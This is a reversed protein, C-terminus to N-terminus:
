NQDNGIVSRIWDLFYIVDTYRALQGAACSRGNGGFGYSTAGALYFKETSKEYCSLPGGSDGQCADQDTTSEICVLSDTSLQTSGHQCRDDNKAVIPVKMWSLSHPPPSQCEADQCGYGSIICEEGAAPREDLLCIACICGMDLDLPEELEILALDNAIGLFEPSDGKTIFAADPNIIVRSVKRFSGCGTNASSPKPFSSAGVSVFIHDLQTPHNVDSNRCVTRM